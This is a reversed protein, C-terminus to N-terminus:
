VLGVAGSSPIGPVREAWPQRRYFYYHLYRGSDPKLLTQGSAKDHWPPYSPIALGGVKKTGAM